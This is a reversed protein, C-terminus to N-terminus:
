WRAYVAAAHEVIHDHRRQGGGENAKCDPSLRETPSHGRDGTRRRESNVREDSCHRVNICLDVRWCVVERDINTVTLTTSPAPEPACSLKTREGVTHVVFAPSPRGFLLSNRTGPTQRPHSVPRHSKEEAAHRNLSTATGVKQSSSKCRRSRSRRM